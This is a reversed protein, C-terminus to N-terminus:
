AACRTLLDAESASLTAFVQLKDADVAPAGAIAVEKRNLFLVIKIAEVVRTAALVRHRALYIDVAYFRLTTVQSDRLLRVKDSSFLPLPDGSDPLPL